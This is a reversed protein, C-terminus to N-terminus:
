VINCFKNLGATHQMNSINRASGNTASQQKRRSPRDRRYFRAGSGAGPMSLRKLRAKENRAKRKAERTINLDPLVTSSM